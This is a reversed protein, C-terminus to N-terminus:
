KKAPVLARLLESITKTQEEIAVALKAVPDVPPTFNFTKKPEGDVHKPLEGSVLRAYGSEIARKVWFLVTALSEKIPVSEAPLQMSKKELKERIRRFQQEYLPEIIFSEGTSVNVRIRQGPIPEPWVNLAARANPEAVRNMDFRGRIRTAAPQFYLCDNRPGDVEIEILDSV